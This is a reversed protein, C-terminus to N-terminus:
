LERRKRCLAIQWPFAYGHWVIDVVQGAMRRFSRGSYNHFHEPDNGWARLHKGRLFNAGRFFPEHPVSVLVYEASVRALERLGVRSDPLHELVELCIVLPFSNAPFPLHHLDFQALPANHKLHTRGWLLADGSFDGGIMKAPSPQAEQLQKLVFGEGCGADLLCTGGTQQILATVKQHFKDLLVRQIPNPNLHKQRNGHRDM